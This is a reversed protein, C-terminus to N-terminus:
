GGADDPVGTGYTAKVVGHNFGSQGYLAAHSDGIQSFRCCWRASMWMRPDGRHGSSPIVEPLCALPIDFLELLMPDWTLDHINFLQYRSANAYDTVFKEGDTLQWVLWADVTGVCLAGSRAREFGHELHQLLWLIKSAPFLPDLM